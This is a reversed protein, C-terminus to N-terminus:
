RVKPNRRPRAGKDRKGVVCYMDDVIIHLQQLKENLITSYLHPTVTHRM